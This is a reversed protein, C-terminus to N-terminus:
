PAVAVLPIGFALAVGVLLIAFGIGAERASFESMPATTREAELDHGVDAGSDDEVDADSENAM